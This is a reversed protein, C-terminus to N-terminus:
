KNFWEWCCVLLEDGNSMKVIAWKRSGHGDSPLTGVTYGHGMMAATVGLKSLEFDRFGFHKMFNRSKERIEQIFSLTRSVRESYADDAGDLIIAIPYWWSYVNTGVWPCSYQVESDIEVVPIGLHELALWGDPHLWSLNFLKRGILDRSEVFRDLWEQGYLIDGIKPKAPSKARILTLKPMPRIEM